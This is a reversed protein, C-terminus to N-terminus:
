LKFNLKANLKNSYQSQGKLEVDLEGDLVNEPTTIENIAVDYFIINTSSGTDIYRPIFEGEEINGELKRRQNDFFNIAGEDNFSSSLKYTYFLEQQDATTIMDIQKETVLYNTTLDTLPGNFFVRQGIDLLDNNYTAVTLTIEPTGKYDLYSQAIQTLATEDATDTRKEYRAIIGNRGTSQAIRNIESENSIVQRSIVIPYYTVTITAGVPVSTTDVSIKTSNYKYYFNAYQGINKATETAFSYSSTGSTISSISAIPYITYIDEGYYTINESQTLASKAEKNVIVQKNRYDKASYSYKIDKINNAEFYADTYEIPEATPLNDNSYFNILIMDESIAKTYWISNTIESIYELVDYPTKENCNYAAMETNDIEFDGLMFGDLNDLVKNVADKINQRELVFNLNDGESLFTKYDLLQLTSYHPYRPNLNINGSNKVVGSFILNDTVTTTLGTLHLADYDYWTQEWLLYEKTPTIQWTNSSSYNVTGLSTLETGAYLTDAEWLTRLIVFNNTMSITYTKGPIVKIYGINSVQETPGTPTIKERADLNYGDMVMVGNKLEYTKTTVNDNVIKCHSYDKPMYFRSVYDKDLEWSKPYVNNLIVSNTNALSEKITMKSNCIVEENNIYIKM